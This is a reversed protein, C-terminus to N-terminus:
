EGEKPTCRVKVYTEPPRLVTSAIVAQGSLGCWAASVYGPQPTVRIATDVTCAERPTATACILIIMSYLM